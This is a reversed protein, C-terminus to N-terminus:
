RAPFATSVMKGPSDTQHEMRNAGRGAGSFIKTLPPLIDMIKNMDMAASFPM